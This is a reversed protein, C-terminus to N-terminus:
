GALLSAADAAVAVHIAAPERVWAILDLATLRDLDFQLAQAQAGSLYHRSIDFAWGTTHLSYGPTAELDSGALLHQYREDRVTSTVTLPHVGSIKQVQAGVYGLLALAGPRLARYLSADAGVRGALSGMGRDIAIGDGALPAVPLPILQGAAEAAQLSTPDAFVPTVTPPHLVEEASNRALQLQAQQAFAAPNSRALEIIQRAAYVRWLYTASDDGLSSLWGWASAHSLPTSDFYLRAYSPEPSGGAGYRSLATQLNGIGMHYSEVALDSRGFRSLALRLYRATAALAQVPDFRPDARRRLAALRAARHVQHRALARALQRTRLRSAALDIHMGLLGTGTSAVIQTLGAAGSIDGGAIADARGASELLILAELTDADVGAAGAAAAIPARWHETRAVSAAIGAPSKAYLVHALGATARHVFGAERAPSYALPDGSPLAVTPAPV